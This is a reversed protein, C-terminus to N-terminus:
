ILKWHYDSPDDVTMIVRKYALETELMLIRDWGRNTTQVEQYLVQLESEKQNIVKTLNEIRANVESLAKDTNFDQCSCSECKEIRVQLDKVEQFDGQALVFGFSSFVLLAVIGLIVWKRM